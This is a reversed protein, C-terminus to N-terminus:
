GFNASPIDTTLLNDLSDDSANLDDADTLQQILQAKQAASQDDPMKLGQLMARSDEAAARQQDEDAM